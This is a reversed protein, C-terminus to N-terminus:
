PFFSKWDLKKLHALSPIAGFRGLLYGKEINLDPRIAFDSLPYFKTAGLDKKEAFWIEDQRFLGLDLLGAEHTTFVLQGKAKKEVALKKLIERILAPHISREIEDIVITDAQSKLRYFVSLFETLKRTGDSEENFDFLVKQKDKTQHYYALTKIVLEGNEFMVVAPTDNDFIISVAKEGKELDELVDELLEADDRIKSEKYKETKIILESVGTDLSPLFENCFTHFDPDNLLREM